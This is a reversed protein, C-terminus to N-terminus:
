ESLDAEEKICAEMKKRVGDTGLEDTLEELETEHNEEAHEVMLAVADDDSEGRAVFGCDIGMDRCALTKM